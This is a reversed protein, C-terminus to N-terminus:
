ATRENEYGLTALDKEVVMSSSIALYKTPLTEYFSFLLLDQCVHPFDDNIHQTAYSNRQLDVLFPKSGSISLIKSLLKADDAGRHPTALFLIAHVRKGISSLGDQQTALRALIYARKVVLGGM